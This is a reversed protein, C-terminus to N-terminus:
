RFAQVEIKSYEIALIHFGITSMDNPVSITACFIAQFKGKLLYCRNGLIWM